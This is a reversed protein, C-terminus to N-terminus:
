RDVMRKRIRVNKWTLFPKTEWRNFGRGNPARGGGELGPNEAGGELLLKVGLAEGEAM